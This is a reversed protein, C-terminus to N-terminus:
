KKRTLLSVINENHAEEGGLQEIVGKIDGGRLMDLIHQPAIDQIIHEVDPNRCTYHFLHPPPLTFSQIVYTDDNKVVFLPFYEHFNSVCQRIFGSLRRGQILREFTATIFWTFGAHVSFTSPIHISDAEDYVLRKWSIMPPLISLFTSYMTSSCLIVPYSNLLNIDNRQNLSSNRQLIGYTRYSLQPDVSQHHSCLVSHPQSPYKCQIGTQQSIYICTYQQSSSCKRDQNEDEEEHEESNRQRNSQFRRCNRFRTELSLLHGCSFSKMDAIREIKKYRLSTKQLESEWQHLISTPVVILTSCIRKRREIDFVSFYPSAEQVTKSEHYQLYDWPMKDRTILGLMSLTKGYGPIDGFIGVKTRFERTPIDTSLLRNEREMEEMYYISTLQHQFLRITNMNPHDVIPYSSSASSSSSDIKEKSEVMRDHDNRKLDHDEGPSLQSLSSSPITAPIPTPLSSYKEDMLCNIPVITHSTPPTSPLPLSSSPIYQLPSSPERQSPSMKKEKKEEMNSPYDVHDVDDHNKKEDHQEPVNRHRSCYKRSQKCKRNRCFRSHAVLYYECCKGEKQELETSM